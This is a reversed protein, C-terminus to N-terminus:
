TKKLQVVFIKNLVLGLPTPAGWNEVMLPELGLAMQPELPEWCLAMPPELGLAMPPEWSSVKVQELWSVLMPEPETLYSFERRRRIIGFPRFWLKEFSVFNPLASIRHSMHEDYLIVSTVDPQAIVLM